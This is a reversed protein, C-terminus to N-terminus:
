RYFAAMLSLELVFFDSAPDLHSSMLRSGHCSKLATRSVFIATFLM